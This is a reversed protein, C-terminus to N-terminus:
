LSYLCDQNRQTQVFCCHYISNSSCGIKQTLRYVGSALALAQVQFFFTPYLLSPGVHDQHLVIIIAITLPEFEVLLSVISTGCPSLTGIPHEAIVIPTRASRPTFNGQLPSHRPLKLPRLAPRFFWLIITRNWESAGNFLIPSYLSDAFAATQLVTGEPYHPRCGGRRGILSVQLLIFLFSKIM